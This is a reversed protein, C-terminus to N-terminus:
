KMTDYGVPDCCLDDDDSHFGPARKQHHLVFTNSLGNKWEFHVRLAESGLVVVAICIGTVRNRDLVSVCQLHRNNRLLSVATINILSFILNILKLLNGIYSLSNILTVCVKIWIFQNNRETYIRRQPKVVVM